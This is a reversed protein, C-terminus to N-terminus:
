RIIEGWAGNGLVMVKPTLTEFFSNSPSGSM